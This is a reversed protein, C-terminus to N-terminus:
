GCLRLVLAPPVSFLGPVRYIGRSGAPLAARQPLFVDIRLRVRLFLPQVDLAPRPQPSIGVVLIHRCEAAGLRGLRSSRAMDSLAQSAPRDGRYRQGSTDRRLGLIIGILVRVHLYLDANGPLAASQPM